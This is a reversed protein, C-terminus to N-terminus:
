QHRGPQILGDKVKHAIRQCAQAIDYQGSYSVAVILQFRPNEKTTKAADAILEQLSKPLKSSDGIMSIQIGERIFNELESKIEREFLHMLFDVEVKPRIWNDCSFAFVTLVRIGWKCCLGILKRLSRVGAEHGLAAPFGRLRAWRVNGDMIVAVHRPMLEQQLGAPLQEEGPSDGAGAVREKVEREEEEAAVDTTTALVKHFKPLSIPPYAHSHNRYSRPWDRTTSSSPKHKFSSLSNQIRIPFVLSLM